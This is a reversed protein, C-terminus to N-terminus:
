GRAPERPEAPAPGAARAAPDPHAEALAPAEIADAATEAPSGTPPTGPASGQPNSGAPEPGDASPSAAAVLSADPTAEALVVPGEGPIPAEGSAPTAPSAEGADRPTGLDTSAPEPPPAAEPTLGVAKRREEEELADMETQITERFDDSARKFYALAQGLSRALEPLKKPGFVLLAIVFIVVLESMGVGFM